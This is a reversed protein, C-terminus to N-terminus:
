EVSSLSLREEVGGEVEDIWYEEGDDWENAEDRSEKARNWHEDISVVTGSESRTVYTIDDDGYDIRWDDEGEAIELEDEIMRHLEAFRRVGEPDVTVTSESRVWEDDINHVSGDNGYLRQDFEKIDVEVPFESDEYYGEEVIFNCVGAVARAKTVSVGVSFSCEAKFMCENERAVLKSM